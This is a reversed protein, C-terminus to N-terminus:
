VVFLLMQVCVVMPNVVGVPTVELAHGPVQYRYGYAAQATSMPQDGPSERPCPFLTGM